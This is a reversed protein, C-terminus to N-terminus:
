VCVGRSLNYSKLTASNSLMRDSLDSNSPLFIGFKQPENLGGLKDIITDLVQQITMSADFRMTSTQDLYDVHVKLIVLEIQPTPEAM